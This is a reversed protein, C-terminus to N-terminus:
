GKLTALEREAIERLYRESDDASTKRVHGLVHRADDTHGAARLREAFVLRSKGAQIREYGKAKEAAALCSDIGAPDGINALSWVAAMRVDVDDDSAAKILLDVSDKDRLVGLNQVLALRQTGNAKALAHRFQERAVAGGIAVLALAASEQLAEDALFRGIAESVEAGGCVQLARIVAERVHPPRDDDLTRALTQAFKKRQEEGDDCVSTALAHLAYRAKLESGKDPEALMDVVDRVFPEGGAQIDALTKLTADRDIRSLIGREDPEPMKEVLRKLEDSIAMDLGEILTSKM